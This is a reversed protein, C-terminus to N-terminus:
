PNRVQYCGQAVTKMNAGSQEIQRLLDMRIVECSAKDGVPVSVVDMARSNFNVPNVSYLVMVLIWNM